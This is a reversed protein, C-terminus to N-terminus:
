RYRIKQILGTLGKPPPGLVSAMTQRGEEETSCAIVDPVPFIMRRAPIVGRRLKGCYRRNKERYPSKMGIVKHATLSGEHRRYQFCIDEIAYMEIGMARCRTNFERDGTCRWPLWMGVKEFTARTYFMQGLPEYRKADPILKGDKDIVESEYSIGLPEDGCEMLKGAVRRLAGPKMIDDSDFSGVLATDASCKMLAANKAPFLGHNQPSHYVRAQDSYAKAQALTEECGDVVVVLEMTCGDPLEQNLISEIAPGVYEVPRFASMLISLKM